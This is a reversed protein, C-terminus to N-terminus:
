FYKDHELLQAKTYAVSNDKKDPNKVDNLQYMPPMNPNLIIHKVKRVTPNFRLDGSRFKNDLKKKDHANISYDLIAHVSTNIPLLDQTYKNVLIEDNLKSYNIKPLNENLYKILFPLQKVWRKEVKGTQLEKSAQYKIIISGINKNKREVMSNQRHRNTLTYKVSVKNDEFYEKVDGKFETGSDFQILKPLDLYDREYIKQFGKQVHNATKNKLPQADCKKNHVDVVVLAYKYGFADTPLYLLDAQHIINKKLINNSIHPIEINKEKRPVKTLINIENKLKTKGTTSKIFDIIDAM